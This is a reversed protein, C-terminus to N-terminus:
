QVMIKTENSHAQGVSISLPVLGPTLGPPVQVDIQYLGVFGPALGAYAVGAPTAGFFVTPTLLTRQPAAGSSTKGLGTCYIEVFDGANVPTTVASVATGAHLVAGDFIGPQVADVNVNTAAQAGSPTVVTLVGAGPAADQPVYFNIQTDSVYLLQLPAQNLLVSVGGLSAPWPYGAALTQGGALNVGAVTELAGPSVGSAFSAANAVAAAVPVTSGASVTLGVTPAADLTLKL